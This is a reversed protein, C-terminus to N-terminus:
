AAQGFVAVVVTRDLRNESWVGIESFGCDRMIALYNPDHYWRTILEMGNIALAPNIAVTQAVRGSFGAARARDQPTSGDSGIDGNLARNDIVDNTHWQAALQLMPNIQLDTTCGAQGQVVHVMQVVSKNLRNNDAAALPMEFLSALIMPLTTAVAVLRQRCPVANM